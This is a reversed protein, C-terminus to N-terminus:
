TENRLYVFRGGKIRTRELLNNCLFAKRKPPNPPTLKSLLGRERERERERKGREKQTNTM